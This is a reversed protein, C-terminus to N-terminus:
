VFWHLMGNVDVSSIAVLPIRLEEYNELPLSGGCGGCCVEPLIFFYLSTRDIVFFGERRSKEGVIITVPSYHIIWLNGTNELTPLCTTLAAIFKNKM